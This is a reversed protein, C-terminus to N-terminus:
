LVFKGFVIGFIGIIIAVAIYYLTQPQEGPPAYRNPTLLGKQKKIVLIEEKLRINEHRLESELERLQQVEKAARQLEQAVEGSAHTIPASKPIENGGTESPASPGQPEGTIKHEEPPLEFVCKLKSDMLQDPSIEKWLTDLYDLNTEVAEPAFVTQVMFKHKNKEAPDYLFPQLCIAIEITKNPGLVGSNPRVCYKKPATTKIKFMVMKETPNTLKMYATVPTNFPGVFKLENQPVIQLVQEQKSM